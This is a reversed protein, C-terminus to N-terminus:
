EGVSGGGAEAAHLTLLERNDDGGRPPTEATEGAPAGAHDTRSRPRCYPPRPRGRVGGHPGAPRRAAPSAHRPVEGPATAPHRRRAREDTKYSRCAALNTGRRLARESGAM